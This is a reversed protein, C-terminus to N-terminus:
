LGPGTQFSGIATQLAVQNVSVGLREQLQFVYQTLLDNAIEGSFQEEAQALDPAGSFYPPVTVETSSSFWSPATRATPSRPSLGEARRLRGRGGGRRPRGAARRRAERRRRDQRDLGADTAITAIDGGSEVQDRIEDARTPRAAERGRGGELRRDGQRPGRGARPRARRLRRHGRVLCLRRDAPIPNNELGVDSEFAATVLAQGGPLDAIANGDADNGTADVAPITRLTLDYNGAIEELTAGGARADEIVDLQDAIEQPPAAARRDGDKIQTRSRTSPRRRGRPEITTVRVIVPGFQGDILASVGNAALAFAAEAVKPDIIETRPILGLDVAEPTLGRKTVIEDFTKGGALAAAAEQGEASSISSSRSSRAGSPRPSARPSSATTSKRRM